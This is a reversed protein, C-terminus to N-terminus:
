SNPIKISPLTWPYDNQGGFFCLGVFCANQHVLFKCPITHFLPRKSELSSEFMKGLDTFPLYM